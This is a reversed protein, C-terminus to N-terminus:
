YYGLKSMTSGCIENFEKIMKSDWNKWHPLSTKHNMNNSKFINKITNKISFRNSYNIPRNKYKQWVAKSVNINTPKSVFKKFYEYNNVVEEFKITYNVNKFIYENTSKWYWCIKQFRNLYKWKNSFVDDDEPIITQQAEFPTFVNRNYASRVYDRGDRILHMLISKHFNNKIWEIHYRLYPNIEGYIKYENNNMLIEFRKKLEIDCITNFKNCYGYFLLKKDLEYPEHLVLAKPDKNLLHTLFTTGSRGISFIFFYKM